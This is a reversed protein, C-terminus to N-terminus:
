ETETEGGSGKTFTRSTVSSTVGDKVAVAKVPTTDTLTLAETYATSASTPASGDTTYHITAGAPGSMTVTTSEEFPTSGSITPAAVTPTENSGGTGSGSGSGTGSSSGGSQTGSGSGSGGSSQQTGGNAAAIASSVDALTSMPNLFVKKSNIGGYSAASALMAEDGQYDAMLDSVVKMRQTSVQTGGDSLNRSHIWSAGANQLAANMGLVYSSGAQVSSFGLASVVNWLPTADDMSLVMRFAEMTARPVGESDVYQEGYFFTLQDDAVWDKNNAILAASLEAVTTQAGIVLSGLGLGTSLVGNSGLTIAIPNLSGRSYQYNGLVCGGCSSDQKSIFIPNKGYNVQIFINYDNQGATKGEFADNLMPHFLSYNAAANPMQCRMNAQKESRRGTRRPNRALITGHDTQRTQFMTDLKGRTQSLFDTTKAM